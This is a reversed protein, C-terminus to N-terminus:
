RNRYILTRALCGEEPKVDRHNIGALIFYEDKISKIEIDGLKEVEADLDKFAIYLGNILGKTFTKVKDGM